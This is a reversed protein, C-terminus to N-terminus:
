PEGLRVINALMKEFSKWPLIRKLALQTKADQGILYRLRPNADQAIAVITRAVAIPDAKPRKRELRRACTKVCRLQEFHDIGAIRRNVFDPHYSRLAAHADDAFRNEDDRGRWLFEDRIATAVRRTHHRRCLRRRRIWRQQGPAGGIVTDMANGLIDRAAAPTATGIGVNGGSSILMPTSTNSNTRFVLNGTPAGIFTNAGDGVMSYSKCGQLGANGFGIGAFPNAGGRGRKVGPSPNELEGVEDNVL